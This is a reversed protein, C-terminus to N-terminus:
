HVALLEEIEKAVRMGSELAGHVTGMQYDLTTAEGAFFLTDAIPEGLLQPLELGNVPLYSYAGRAFPDAKWNHHDVRQLLKGLRAPSEDFFGALAKLGREVVFKEERVALRAGRPGGAWGTLVNANENTWWTPLWEDESHIFGFHPKPWFREKFEFVVKTVDGFAIEQIVTRKTNIDPSFEIREAKLVGLPLTLVVIEGSYNERKRGALAGVEVHNPRWDITKVITRKSVRVGSAALETELWDILAGYGGIIREMSNGGIAEASEEAAAISHVGIKHQDAANFGEVFDIAINRTQKPIREAAIFEAFTQDPKERDIRKFVEDIESWLDRRKLRGGVPQWHEDTVAGTRLPAEDILGWLPKSRGHIFEAGLEIAYPAHRTYIRGGVRNRAELVHVQWGGRCLERAAMLGSIGGGIVLAAPRRNM